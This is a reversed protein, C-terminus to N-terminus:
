NRRRTSTRGQASSAGREKKAARRTEVSTRVFKTAEDAVLQEARKSFELGYTWPIERPIGTTAEQGLWSVKKLTELHFRIAQTALQLAQLSDIGVVSGSIQKPLGAIRFEAIWGEQPARSKKPRYITATLKRAGAEYQRTAVVANETQESESRRM